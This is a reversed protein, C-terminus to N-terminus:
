NDYALYKNHQLSDGFSHGDICHVLDNGTKARQRMSMVESQRTLDNSNTESHSGSVIKICLLDSNVLLRAHGARQELILIIHQMDGPLRLQRDM